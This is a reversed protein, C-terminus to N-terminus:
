TNTKEEPEFINRAHEEWIHTMRMRELVMKTVELAHSSYAQVMTDVMDIRGSSELKSRPIPKFGELVEDLGLYWKFREFDERGLDELIGLLIERTSSM